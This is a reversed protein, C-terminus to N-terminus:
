KVYPPKRVNLPQEFDGLVLHLVHPHVVPLMAKSWGAKRTFTTVDKRPIPCLRNLSRQIRERANGLRENQSREFWTFSKLSNLTQPKSEKRVAEKVANKSENQVQRVSVVGTQVMHMFRAHEVFARHPEDAEDGNHILRFGTQRQATLDLLEKRYARREEERGADSPLKATRLHIREELRQRNRDILRNRRALTVDLITFLDTLLQSKVRHDFPTDSNFSPSHNVEMLWPKGNEDVLVDFGLVEFCMAGTIDEAQCSTYIHALIPQIACLTKVIIREIEAIIAKTDRGCATLAAWVAALSRKHGTEAAVGTTDFRFKPSAKNIAYNTLHQCLVGLNKSTPTVYEETAFRGLGEDYLYITLPTVSTVLAYIRMDFKLGDVLLPRDIYRQVICPETDPPDDNKRFLIIGKGQSSAEPKSILFPGCKGSEVFTRLQGREAPLCFTEPFFDYDTEFKKQMKKLHIALFNKRAIAFIGPFHNLKQHCRLAGLLNQNVAADNWMIDCNLNADDDKIIEWGLKRCVETHVPYKCDSLNICIRQRPLRTPGSPRAGQKPRTRKVPSEAEM